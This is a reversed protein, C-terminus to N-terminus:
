VGKFRDFAAFSCKKLKLFRSNMKTEINMNIKM